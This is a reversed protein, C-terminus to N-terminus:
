GSGVVVVVPAETELVPRPVREPDGIRVMSDAAVLEAVEIARSERTLQPRWYVEVIEQPKVSPMVRRLTEYGGRRLKRAVSDIRGGAAVIGVSPKPPASRRILELDTKAGDRYPFPVAGGIINDGADVEAVQSGITVRAGSVDGPVIGFM